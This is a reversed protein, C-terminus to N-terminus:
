AGFLPEITKRMLYLHLADDEFAQFGYQVYFRKAEGDKAEVLFATWAIEARLSRAMADMLLHQGLGRGCADVHVALRGLRVAPVTPYRPMRRAVDIPLRDLLVSAMSVTYFGHVVGDAREVAVFVSAVNRRADQGAQNRFYDDLDHIGCTFTTRDHNDQLPAVEYREGAPDDGSM